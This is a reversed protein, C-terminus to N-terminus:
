HYMGWKLIAILNGKHTNLTSVNELPRSGTWFGIACPEVFVLVPLVLEELSSSEKQFLLSKVIEKFDLLCNTVSEFLM